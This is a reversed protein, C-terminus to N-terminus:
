DDLQWLAPVIDPTWGIQTTHAQICRYWHGDYYRRDGANVVEDPKWANQKEEVAEMREEITLPRDTQVWVMHGDVYAVTWEKGTDPPTVPMSPADDVVEFTYEAGDNQVITRTFIEGNKFIVLEM